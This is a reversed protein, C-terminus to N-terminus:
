PHRAAAPRDHLGFRPDPARTGAVIEAMMTGLVPAHKFAHGSGGGFIWTRDAAPHPALIFM